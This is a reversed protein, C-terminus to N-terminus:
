SRERQKASERRVPAKASDRIESSKLIIELTRQAVQASQDDRAILAMSIAGDMLLMTQRSLSEPAVYDTQRFLNRLWSEIKAKHHQALVRLRGDFKDNEGVANVFPCGYFKEDSFWIALTPFIRDVCERATGGRGEVSDFFWKRWREGDIELVTEVLKEKSGFAKYLTTKATGAKEVIADVGIANIGYRGFLESAASILRDRPTTPADAGLTAVKSDPLQDKPKM